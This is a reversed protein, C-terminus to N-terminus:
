HKPLLYKNNIQFKLMFLLSPHRCSSRKQWLPVAKLESWARNHMGNNTIKTFADAIRLWQISSEQSRYTQDKFFFVQINQTRQLQM